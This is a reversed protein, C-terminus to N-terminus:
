VSPALRVRAKLDFSFLYSQYHWVLLPMGDLIHGDAVAARALDFRQPAGSRAFGAIFAGGIVLVTVKWGAALEPFISGHHNEGCRSDREHWLRVLKSPAAVVEVRSSQRVQRQLSPTISAESM